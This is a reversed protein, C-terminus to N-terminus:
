LLLGMEAPTRFVRGEDYGHHYPECLTDGQVVIAKAGILSLQVYTMYVGNWDLDQAIIRLKRQYNIGHEKAMQCIAIMMGGGGASPENIEITKDNDINDFRSGYTLNATLYSLHYPTFFQGTNKSGCGARMYIEGLVDCFRNELICTLAGTMNAMTKLENQDYKGSITLYLEEREKWIKDHIM